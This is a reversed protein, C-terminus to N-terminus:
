ESSSSKSRELWTHFGSDTYIEPPLDDSLLASDIEENELAMDLQNVYYTGALGIGLATVMALNRLPNGVLAIAHAFRSRDRRHQSHDAAALARSRRQRLDVLVDVPLNEVSEDLAQKLRYASQQMEINNM